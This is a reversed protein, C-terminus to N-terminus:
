RLSFPFPSDIVATSAELRKAAGNELVPGEAWGVEM